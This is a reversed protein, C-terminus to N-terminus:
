APRKARIIWGIPEKPDGQEFAVPEESTLGAEELRKIFKVAEERTLSADLMGKMRDQHAANEADLGDFWQLIDQLAYNQRRQFLQAAGQLTHQALKHGQKALEMLAKQPEELQVRAIDVAESSEDRGMAEFLRRAATTFGTAEFMETEKLAGECERAIAGERMHVLASFLGGPALLEAIVPALDLAGAYEFGFQSVVLDYQEDGLPLAQLHSVVGTVGPYSREVFGIADASIDVGTLATHGEAHAHRIVSGAGCALDLMRASKSVKSLEDNWHRAIDEDSEIGPQSSIDGNGGSARGRWYTEWEGQGSM